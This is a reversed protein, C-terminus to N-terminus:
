GHAKRDTARAEIAAMVTGMLAEAAGAAFTADVPVVWHRATALGRCKVADKETMLVPLADAFQLDEATFRAHDPLPHAIIELGAARLLAFFRQPHGIGALAHVTHGAWRALPQSAGGALPVAVTGQLDMALAGPPLHAAHSPQGNVVVAGARQLRATSERLPGAPLLRGNGFGRAGDVVIIELDRGLAAHQLGDDSLIVDCQAAVLLRAAAPRDRGVAVPVACRQALLLAEDGVELATDGDSVQHPGHQRGGYGRSVIGPRLGRARLRAVLWVVLPTKGTGGVTLNGVVIVPVPLHAVGQLGIRYSLGRLGLVAGYLAALPRLAVPAHAGYWSRELWEQLASPRM